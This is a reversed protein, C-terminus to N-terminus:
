YRLSVKNRSRYNYIDEILIKYQEVNSCDQLATPQIKLKSVFQSHSYNEHKFIGIMARIFLVRNYNEYYPKIMILKEACEVSYDYDPIKLDGDEFTRIAIYKTGTSEREDKRTSTNKNGSHQSLLVECAALGFMPYQNMFGKFILYQDYGLDCYAKLYDKKTWNSMNTNLRQVESLGYGPVITYYIPRGTEKAARVRHQGDIIENKDNVLVVNFLHQEKFSRKLRTVHPMNLSRNGDIHNFKKYDNTKYVHNVIEDKM